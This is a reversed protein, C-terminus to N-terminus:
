SAPRWWRLEPTTAFGIPLARERKRLFDFRDDPHPMGVYRFYLEMLSEVKDPKAYKMLNVMCASCLCPQAHVKFVGWLMTQTGSRYEGYQSLMALRPLSWHAAVLHSTDTPTGCLAGCVLALRGAITPTQWASMIKTTQPITDLRSSEMAMLENHTPETGVYAEAEQILRFTDRSERGKVMTVAVMAAPALAGSAALDGAERAATQVTGTFDANVIHIKPSGSRVLKGGIDGIRGGKAIVRPFRRGKLSAVIATNEDVIVMQSERFGQSLAVDVEDGESSPM